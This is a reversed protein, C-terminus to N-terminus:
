RARAPSQALAWTSTPGTRPSGAVRRPRRSCRPTSTQAPTRWTRSCSGPATPPMATSMSGNRRPQPRRTEHPRPPVPRPRSPKIVPPPRRLTRATRPPRPPRTRRPPPSPCTGPSCIPPPRLMVPTARPPRQPPSSRATRTSRWTVRTVMSAAPRPRTGHRAEPDVTSIVRDKAVRRAIRFVGDADQDLDQGVVSALLAAAQAVLLDLERRGAREATGPTRPWRTWWRRGPRRTTWDCGPKWCRHITTAACCGGCRRRWIM